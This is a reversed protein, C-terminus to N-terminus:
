NLPNKRFNKLLIKYLNQERYNYRFECEKLHLHFTHKHIGKFRALRTKCLGWFGEIGNVHNKVIVKKKEEQKETETLQKIGNLYLIKSVKSDNDIELLQSFENDGHKIRYHKKYGFDVIGNYSQWTDSFITTEKPNHTNNLIVPILEDASCNKVIQTYVKDKRKLMGFVPTKGSAGRGRKGKVRRAGFYSEDIEIEGEGLPNEQECIMFIRERFLMFLRNITNVNLNTLNATKRAEIGESFLKLVERFKEESIHAVKIYKNKM